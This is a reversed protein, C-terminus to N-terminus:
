NDKLIADLHDKYGLKTLTNTIHPMFNKGHRNREQLIIKYLCMQYFQTSGLNNKFKDRLNTSINEITTNTSGLSLGLQFINFYSPMILYSLKWCQYDTLEMM